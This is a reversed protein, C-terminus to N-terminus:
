TNDLFDEIKYYSETLLFNKLCRKFKLKNEENKIIEPLKNTLQTANFMTHNEYFTKSHYVTKILNKPRTNYHNSTQSEITFYKPNNKAFNITEYIYISPITLLGKEKFINKCSEQKKLKFITRIAAKQLIFLNKLNSSKGWISIGYKVHSIFLSHYTYLLIEESCFLSLKRILFLSKSLKKSVYAIHHKFKLNNDIKLGLYTTIESEIIREDQVTIELLNKFNNRKNISFNLLKTKSSNLKFGNIKFWDVLMDCDDCAKKELNKDNENIVTMATDDAFLYINSNSNIKLDYLYVIFLIPGLNSGQPVGSKTQLETSYIKEELGTIYNSYTLEVKQIRETIYSRFWDLALGRIGILELKQLLDEHPVMDFAKQLDFFLGLIKKNNDLASVINHILEYMAQITSINKRFGFQNQPLVNNQNLFSSLNYLIVKEFVKSIPSLISIPRYHKEEDKNGSKYIPKIISTKLLSPFIGYEISNNILYTLPSTIEFSIAKLLNTSIEDFGPTNSSKLSKIIKVIELETTGQIFMSKKFSSRLDIDSPVINKKFNNSINGVNIYYENFKNALDKPDVSYTKAKNFQSIINEQSNILNRHKNIINWIDKSPNKSNSLKTQIFISKEKRIMQKYQKKREKYLDKIPHLPLLDKSTIYLQKLKKRLELTKATFQIKCSSVSKLKFKKIPFANHFHKRLIDNFCNYKEDLTKGEDYISTWFENQLLQKFQSTNKPNIMRKYTYFSNSMQKNTKLLVEQGHHDSLATIMISSQFEQSKINTFVLDIMSKSGRVERTFNQIQQDLGFSSMTTILRDQIEGKQAMNINFDGLVIVLKNLNNNFIQFICKTLNDFFIDNAKPPRYVVIIYINKPIAELIVAALEIHREVCYASVNFSNFKLGNKIFLCVGGKKYISRCYYSACEYGELHTEKLETEKLHHESICLIDPFEIQLFVELGEFKSLLSDINQHIIKINNSM